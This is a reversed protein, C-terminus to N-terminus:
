GGIYYTSAGPVALLEANVLGGTTAEILALTEKPGDKTQRGKLLTAVRNALAALPGSSTVLPAPLVANPRSFYNALVGLSGPLGGSKGEPKTAPRHETLADGLLGLAAAAFDEM